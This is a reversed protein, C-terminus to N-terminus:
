FDFADEASLGMAEKNLNLSNHIFLKETVSKKNKSNISRVVQQEWVCDFDDPAIEESVLVINNKSWKRVTDWFEKHNFSKTITDYGKTGAYPPDCYILSNSANLERYDAVRFDVDLIFKLQNLINEKSEVYYDRVKGNEVSTGGYGGDYFRGNFGALFGVAGIYWDDYYNDNVRYHARCDAFQERSISEPLEGGSQLYKFLAILYKNKDSGIRTGAVVKDIMNAGGVFPEIYTDINNLFMYSSIFPVIEGAIAAKSGM